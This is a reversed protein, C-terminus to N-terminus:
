SQPPGYFTMAGGDANSVYVPTDVFAANGTNMVGSVGYVLKLFWNPLITMDGGTIHSYLLDGDQTYVSVPTGAPLQGLGLFSTPYDDAISTPLWGGKGGSDFVAAVDQKPGDGLQVEIDGPHQPSGVFPAGDLSAIPSLGDVTAPEPGFVLQDGPEDILVGEGLDGPLDTTVLNSGGANPGIGLIGDVPAGTLSQADIVSLPFSFLVADVTAHDNVIGDGFDVTTPVDLGVNFGAAFRTIDIDSLSFHRLGNLIVQPSLDWVSVELGKSGTDLALPISPGGGLSVDVVPQGTGVGEVHLPVSATDGPADFPLGGSSGTDVVLTNNAGDVTTATAAPESAGPVALDISNLSALLSDSWSTLDTAAAPDFGSIADTLSTVIPQIIPDILADIDAKAPAATLASGTVMAAAALVIGAGGMVVGCRHATANRSLERGAM